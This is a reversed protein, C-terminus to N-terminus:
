KKKRGNKDSLYDEMARLRRDYRVKYEYLYAVAMILIGILSYSILRDTDNWFVYYRIVSAVLWLAGSFMAAITLHTPSKM